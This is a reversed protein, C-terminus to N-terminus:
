RGFRSLKLAAAMPISKRVMGMQQGGIALHGSPVPQPAGAKQGCGSGRRPVQLCSVQRARHRGAAPLVQNREHVGAVLGHGGGQGVRTAGPHADGALGVAAELKREPVLDLVRSRDIDSLISAYTHGKESSKEDIGLYAIEEETRRLM